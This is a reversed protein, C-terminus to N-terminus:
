TEPGELSAVATLVEGCTPVDAPTPVLRTLIIYLVGGQEDIHARSLGWGVGLQLLALRTTLAFRDGACSPRVACFSAILQLRARM